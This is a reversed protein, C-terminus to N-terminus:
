AAKRAGDLSPSKDSLEITFTNALNDAKVSLVYQSSLLDGGKEELYEQVIKNMTAQNIVMSNNGILNDMKM